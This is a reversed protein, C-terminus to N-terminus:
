GSSARACACRSSGGPSYHRPLGRPANAEASVTGSEDLVQLWQGQRVLRARTRAAISPAGDPTLTTDAVAERLMTTPPTVQQGRNTQVLTYAVVGLWIMFVASLAVILVFVRALFHGTLRGRLSSM